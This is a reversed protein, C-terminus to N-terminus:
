VVSKRDEACSVGMGGLLEATYRLPGSVLYQQYLRMMEGSRHQELTLMKRFQAAFEDFSMDDLFVDEGSRLAPEPILIGHRPGDLSKLKELM